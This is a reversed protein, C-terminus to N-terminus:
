VDLNKEKLMEHLGEIKNGKMANEAKERGLVQEMKNLLHINRQYVKSSDGDLRNVAVAVEEERLIHFIPYPSRQLM